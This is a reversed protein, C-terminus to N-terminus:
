KLSLVWSALIRSDDSTVTANPPMPVNGWSGNGGTRIKNALTETAGPQGAYKKAVDKYAPGVIKRNIDHCAFCNKQKAIDIPDSTERDSQRQAIKEPAKGGEFFVVADPKWETKYKGEEVEACKQDKSKNRGYRISRGGTWTITAGAKITTDNSVHFGCLEDGFLDIINLTGKVGAIDKDTKNQYGIEVVINEDMVIGSYGRETAIKKSVLVVSVANRMTAEAKAQEAKLKEKIAKEEESKALAKAAFDQQESIAKGITMGDPIPTEKIGLFGNMAAGVTHRMTYGILLEREATTLKEMAPKISEMKDLQTPLVTDKPNSCAAVFLALAVIVLLKM